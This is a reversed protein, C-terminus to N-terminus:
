HFHVLHLIHIHGFAHLVHVDVARVTRRDGSAFVSFTRQRAPLLGVSSPLDTGEKYGIESTFPAVYGKITGRATEGLSAPRVSVRFLAFKGDLDRRFSMGHIDGPRPALKWGRPLDISFRRKTDVYEKAMTPKAGMAVM